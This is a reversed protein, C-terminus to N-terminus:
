MEQCKEIRYFLSKPADTPNFASQFLTDNQLLTMMDPKKYTGDLHDLINNISMSANWGILSPINSLKFQDAVNTNLMCFCARQINEYLQYEKQLRLFVANAQKIM